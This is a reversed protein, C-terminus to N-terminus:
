GSPIAEFSRPPVTKLHQIRTLNADLVQMAQQYNM